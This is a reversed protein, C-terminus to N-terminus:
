KGMYKKMQDLDDLYDQVDQEHDAEEALIHKAIDNTVFDKGETFDAIEQYRVMACEEASRIVKLLTEVDFSSPMEYPCRAHSFWDHPSLVPVGELEIIRGALMQAHQLEESAHTLFENQIDGRQPGVVVQAATWYQYYALWEESLAANLMDLLKAVDIKKKLQIVSEKAM